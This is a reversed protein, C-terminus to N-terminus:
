RAQQERNAKFIKTQPNFAFWAFWYASVSDTLSDGNLVKATATTSEDDWFIEIEKGAVKDIFRAQGHQRLEIYPYAKAVGNVKIGLVREKTHYGRPIQHAVEFFLRQSTEYGQYPDRRYNRRFGQKESLVLTNKHLKRWRKWTTLELSLPQLEKGLYKGSIAHRDIQSWLSESQRDYLLVDSNYLLGSVGFNLVTGDVTSSFAMGTGCLPCYTVVFAFDNIKDNVIEHWNLIHLPYAIYKGEIKLGLVKDKNKLFHANAANVYHPKNIAPIGDKPPGGHIIDKQDISANSTDFGNLGAQIDPLQFVLIIFLFLHKIM